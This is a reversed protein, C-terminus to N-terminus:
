NAEIERFTLCDINKTIGIPEQEMNYRMEDTFIKLKITKINTETNNIVNSSVCWIDNIDLCIFGAPQISSNVTDSTIIFKRGIIRTQIYFIMYFSTNDIFKFHIDAESLIEMTYEAAIDDYSIIKNVISITLRKYITNDIFTYRLGYVDSECHFEHTPVELSYNHEPIPSSLNDALSITYPNPVVETENLNSSICGRCMPCKTKNYAQNMYTIIMCSLHFVNHCCETLAQGDTTLIEELCIPCLHEDTEPITIGSM